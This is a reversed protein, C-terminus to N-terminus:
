GIKRVKYTKLFKDAKKTDSEELEEDVTSRENNDLVRSAIKKSSLLEKQPESVRDLPNKLSARRLARDITKLEIKADEPSMDNFRELDVKIDESFDLEYEDKTLKNDVAYLQLATLRLQYYQLQMEQLTAKDTSAKQEKEIQSLRLKLDRNEDALKTSEQSKDLETTMAKTDQTLTTNFFDDDGLIEVAYKPLANFKEQDEASFTGASPIAPIDVASLERIGWEICRYRAYQELEREGDADRSDKYVAKSILQLKKMQIGVSNGPETGDEVDQLYRDAEPSRNLKVECILKKNELRASIVKGIRKSNSFFSGPHGDFFMCVGNNVRELDVHEKKHSLTLLYPEWREYSFREIETEDSAILTVIRNEIDFNEKSAKFTIQQVPLNVIKSM